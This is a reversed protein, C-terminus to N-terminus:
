STIASRRGRRRACCTSPAATSCTGTLLDGGGLVGLSLVVECYLGDIVAGAGFSFTSFITKAYGINAGFISPCPGSGKGYHTCDIVYRTSVAALNRCTVHRSQDQCIAISSKTSSITCADIAINEANQTIGNPSIAIGVVFGHIFCREISISSSGSGGSGSPIYFADLGPYSDAPKPSCFPDICIGAYPAHRSNDTVGAALFSSDDYLTDLTVTQQSVWTNKGTIALNEIRVARGCQIIIAPKDPYSPLIAWDPLPTDPAKKYGTPTLAGRSSVYGIVV